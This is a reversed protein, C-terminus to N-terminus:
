ASWLEDAIDAANTLPGGDARLFTDALQSMDDADILSSDLIKVLMQTSLRSFFEFNFENFDPQCFLTARKHGRKRWRLLRDAQSCTLYLIRSPLMVHPNFLSNLAIPWASPRGMKWMSFEFALLTFVSRDLLVPGSTSCVMAEREEEIRVFGPFRTQPRGRPSRRGRTTLWDIYEPVVIWHGGESLLRSLTSKGACVGGELASIRPDTARTPLQRLDREMGDM